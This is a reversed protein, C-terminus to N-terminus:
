RFWHVLICTQIFQQLFVAGPFRGSYTCSSRTSICETSTSHEALVFMIFMRPIIFTISPSSSVLNYLQNTLMKTPQQMCVENKNSFSIYSYPHSIQTLVSNTNKHLISSICLQLKWDTPLESHRPKNEAWSLFCHAKLLSDQICNQTFQCVAPLFQRHYCLMIKGTVAKSHLVENHHTRSVKLYTVIHGTDKPFCLLVM